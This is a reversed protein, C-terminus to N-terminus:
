ELKSAGNTDIYRQLIDNIIRLVDEVYLVSMDYVSGYESVVMVRNSESDYRVEVIELVSIDGEINLAIKFGKPMRACEKDLEILGMLLEKAAHYLDRGVCGFFNIVKTYNNLKTRM